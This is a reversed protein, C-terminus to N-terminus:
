KNRCNDMHWRKMVSKGGVKGCHPCTLKEQAIGKQAFNVKGLNHRRLKERMEKTWVRNKNSEVVKARGETTFGKRRKAAESLKKRTEASAPARNLNAQRIKERTELSFHRGKKSESLVKKIYEYTRSNVFKKTKNGHAFRLLASAMKFHAIGETMRVLLMHCIFHERATLLAINSKSNYDGKLWGTKSRSKYFSQPIIHHREFYTGSPLIRTKAREIISYYIKTYKNDIFIM